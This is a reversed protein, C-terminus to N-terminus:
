RNRRLEAFTSVLMQAEDHGAARQADWKCTWGLVNAIALAYSIVHINVSGLAFSQGRKVLAMRVIHRLKPPTCKWSARQNMRLSKAGPTVIGATLDEEWALRSDLGWCDPLPEEAM